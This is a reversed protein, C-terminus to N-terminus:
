SVEERLFCLQAVLRGHARFSRSKVTGIPLGLKMAIEAHSMGELHQLRVIEREENPLQDIAERVQWATWAADIADAGAPAPLQPDLETWPRRRERQAIDLAARRTITFLLPRVDRAPDVRGSARWLNTFAVQTAEEALGTDGVIRKAVSFVIRGYCQYLDRVVDPDDGAALRGAFVRGQEDGDGVADDYTRRFCGYPALADCTSVTCSVGLDGQVTEM